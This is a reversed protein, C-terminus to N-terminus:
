PVVDFKLDDFNYRPMQVWSGDDQKVPVKHVRVQDVVMRGDKEKLWFDLDYFQDTTGPRRFDTCAFYRGDGQLRRVPQHTGVFQLNLNEGTKDDKVPFLGHNGASQSVVDEELASMVEWGRVQETQGPHESAPIWWWPIPQRTVLKWTDGDRRPAKYIRTDFLTLKDQQPKVWFDVLYKKAADDQSHFIVEPFFGYGHLTRMFDVKEYVLRLDQGSVADPLVFVGQNQGSKEKILGETFHQVDEGTYRDMAKGTAEVDRAAVFERARELNGEPDLLFRKRASDNGFCYTKGDKATWKTSCDTAVHQGEALSMACQGGFEASAAASTEAASAMPSVAVLALVAASLLFGRWASVTLTAM